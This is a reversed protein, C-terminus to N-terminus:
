VNIENFFSGGVIGVSFMCQKAGFLFPIICFELLLVDDSCSVEINQVWM